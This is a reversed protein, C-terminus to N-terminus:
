VERRVVILPKASSLGRNGRAKEFRREIGFFRRYWDSRGPKARVVLVLITASFYGQPHASSSSTQPCPCTGDLTREREVVLQTSGIRALLDDDALIAPRTRPVIKLAGDRTREALGAQQAVENRLCTREADVEINNLRDIL